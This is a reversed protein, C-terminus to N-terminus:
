QHADLSLSLLRTQLQKDGALEEMSGAHAIRGDDVRYAGQLDLGDVVRLVNVPLVARATDDFKDAAATVTVDIARTDKDGFGVHGSQELGEVRGLGGPEPGAEPEPERLPDDAVM